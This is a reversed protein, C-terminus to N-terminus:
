LLFFDKGVLYTKIIRVVTHIMENKTLRTAFTLPPGNFVTAPYIKTGICFTGIEVGIHRRNRLCLGVGFGGQAKDICVFRAKACGLAGRIEILLGDSPMRDQVGFRTIDLRAVFYRAHLSQAATAREDIFEVFVAFRNSCEFRELRAVLRIISGFDGGIPKAGHHFASEIDRLIKVDIEIEFLKRPEVGAILCINGRFEFFDDRRFQGIVGIADVASILFPDGIVGIIGDFHRRDPLRPEIRARRAFREIHWEVVDQAFDCLFVRAPLDIRLFEFFVEGADGM